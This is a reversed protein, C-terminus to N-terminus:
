EPTSKEWVDQDAHEWDENLARSEDRRALIAEKLKERDVAIPLLRAVPEGRVELVFGDPDLHASLVFQKVRDDQKDLDIHKMDRERAAMSSLTSYRRLTSSNDTSLRRRDLVFGPLNHLAAPMPQGALGAAVKPLVILRPMGNLM